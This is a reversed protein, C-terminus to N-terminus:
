DEPSRVTPRLARSRRVAGIGAIGLAVLAATGPEPIPSLSVLLHGPLPRNLPNDRFGDYRASAVFATRYRDGDGTVSDGVRLMDADNGVLPGVWAEIWRGPWDDQERFGLIEFLGNAQQYTLDARNCPAAGFEALLACAEAATAHRYGPLALAEEYSWGRTMTPRLWEMGLALFGTETPIPLAAAPSAALLLAFALPRM